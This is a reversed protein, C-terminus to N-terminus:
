NTVALDVMGELYGQLTRARNVISVRLQPDFGEQRVGRRFSCVKSALGELLQLGVEESGRFLRPQGDDGRYEVSGGGPQSDIWLRELVTFVIVARLGDEGQGNDRMSELMMLDPLIWHVIDNFADGYLGILLVRDFDFLHRVGEICAVDDALKDDQLGASDAAAEVATEISTESDVSGDSELGSISAQWRSILAEFAEDLDQLLSYLTTSLAKAQQSHLFSLDSWSDDPLSAVASDPRALPTKELPRRNSPFCELSPM